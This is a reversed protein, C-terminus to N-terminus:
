RWPIIEYTARDGGWGPRVIRIEVGQAMERASCKVGAKQLESLRTNAQQIVSNRQLMASLDPLAEAKETAM